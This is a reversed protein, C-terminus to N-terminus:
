KQGTYCAIHRTVLDNLQDSFTDDTILRDRWLGTICELVTLLQKSDKKYPLGCLHIHLKRARRSLVRRRVVASYIVKKAVLMFSICATLSSFINDKKTMSTIGVGALVGLGIAILDAPGSVQNKVQKFLKLIDETMFDSVGFCRRVPM